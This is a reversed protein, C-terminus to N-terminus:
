ARIPRRATSRCRGRDRHWAAPPVPPQRDWSPRRAGTAGLPASLPLFSVRSSFPQSRQGVGPGAPRTACWSVSAREGLALDILPAFERRVTLFEAVIGLVTRWPGPDPQELLAFVERAGTGLGEHSRELGELVEIRSVLGSRQERLDSASRPKM